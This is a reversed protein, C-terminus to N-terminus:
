IQLFNDMLKRALKKMEEESEECERLVQKVTKGVHAPENPYASAWKKADETTVELHFIIGRVNDKAYAQIPCPNGEALQKGGPPITFMDSHWHFVPFEEPFGKFLPDKLGNETLRVKYGGVEKGTSPKVEAGQIKALMQAGCCVGLCPKGSQIIQELYALEKRLFHHDQADNASIPTPGVIYFDHEEILPFSDGTKMRYAHILTLDTVERLYAEYAGLTEPPDNQLILVKKAM